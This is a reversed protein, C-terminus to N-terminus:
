IVEEIFDGTFNNLDGTVVDAVEGREEEYVCWEPREPALPCDEGDGHRKHLEDLYDQKYIGPSRAEAFAQVAASLSWDVELILYSIILFGTRNFGHTCHVGM